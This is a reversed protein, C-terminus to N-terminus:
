LELLAERYRGPELLFSHARVYDFIHTSHSVSREVTYIVTEVTQQALPQTRDDLLSWLLLVCQSLPLVCDLFTATYNGAFPRWPFGHNWFKIELYRELLATVEPHDEGLTHQRQQVLKRLRIDAQPETKGGVLHQAFASGELLSKAWPREFVKGSQAVHMWYHRRLAPSPTLKGLARQRVIKDLRRHVDSEKSGVKDALTRDNLANAQAKKQLWDLTGALDYLRVGVPGQWNLLQETYWELHHQVAELLPDEWVAAARIDTPEAEFAPEGARLQANVLAVIEPCSLHATRLTTHSGEIEARPYTRCTEPLWAHGLRRQLECLGSAEQFCCYGNAARRLLPAGANVASETAAQLWERRDRDARNWRQLTAADVEVRWGHCCNDRCQAGTCEFRHLARLRRRTMTQKVGDM